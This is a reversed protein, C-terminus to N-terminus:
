RTNGGNLSDDGHGSEERKRLMEGSCAQAGGLGRGLM